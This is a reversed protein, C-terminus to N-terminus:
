PTDTGSESTDSGHAFLQVALCTSQALYEGRQYVDHRMRTVLAVLTNMGASM